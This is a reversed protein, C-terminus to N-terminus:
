RTVEIVVVTPPTVTVQSSPETSVPEMTMPASPECLLVRERIAASAPWAAGTKGAAKWPRKPLTGLSFRGTSVAGESLQSACEDPNDEWNKTPRSLAHNM